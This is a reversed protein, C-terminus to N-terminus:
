QHLIFLMTDFWTSFWDLSGTILMCSNSVRSHKPEQYGRSKAIKIRSVQCDQYAQHVTVVQLAVVRMLSWRCAFLVCSLCVLLLSLILCSSLVLCFLPWWLLSLQLLPCCVWLRATSLCCLSLCLLALSLSVNSRSFIDVFSIQVTVLWCAVCRPLVVFGFLWILCCM